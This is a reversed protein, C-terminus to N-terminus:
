IYIMKGIRDDYEYRRHTDDHGIHVPPSVRDRYAARIYYVMRGSGHRALSLCDAIHPM